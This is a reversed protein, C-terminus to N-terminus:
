RVRGPAIRRKPVTGEAAVMQGSRETAGQTLETILAAEPLNRWYRTPMERKMMAVKLRSPNFIHRYYTLWLAEGADPAPADSRQAGLGTHLTEGDWRISADPTLIAWQMQTFRRVFFGATAETIYHDPEFWAMHLTSGDDQTVPRFRVFAHMKHEDRSVARAM